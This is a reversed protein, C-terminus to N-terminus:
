MGPYLTNNYHTPLQLPRPNTYIGATRCGFFIVEQRSDGWVDARTFYCHTQREEPTATDPYVIPLEAVVEGQGDYIAAPEGPGRSYVLVERPEGHGSWDIEVCAAYWGGEPQRRQWVENGDLDYLYLTAPARRGNAQPQGRDIVMFQVPGLDPRFHGAVVHQAEALPHSWLEAGDPTLCHIGHNGCMLRWGGDALQVIYVADQHAGNTPHDFLPTGDQDLLAFGFFVEDCGDGDVDAIAPYHATSGEWHWLTEGEASVGWANWYRDKVVFDQRRGRGTLDAFLFSDDAPAPIAFRRKERGTAGELVVMHASGEYRKAREVIPNGPEYLEAYTAQEVFLVENAGDNDWDYVQVPLDAYIEGHDRSPTGWQWIVGGQLTLATLCSITRSGRIDQVILLDPGGDGDLDGVRLTEGGFDRVDLLQLLHAVPAAAAM